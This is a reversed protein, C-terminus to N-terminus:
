RNANELLVIPDQQLLDVLTQYLNPEEAKLQRPQEFFTEVAVAWCEQMSSAAYPNLVSSGGARIKQFLPLAAIRFSQYKQSIEDDGISFAHAMEHMGLNDADTYDRYGKLFHDWSIYIGMRNVHGAFDRQYGPLRYATRVVFITEFHDLTFHELGFTLQIAASGILIEANRNVPMGVFRFEIADLFRGLRERFRVRENDPLLAYYPNNELLLQHFDAMDTGSVPARERSWRRVGRYLTDWQWLLIVLPVLGSFITLFVAM